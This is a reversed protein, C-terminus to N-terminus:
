PSTYPEPEARPAVQGESLSEQLRAVAALGGYLAEEEEGEGEEEEAGMAFGVGRRARGGGVRGGGVGVGRRLMRRERRPGAAAVLRGGAGGADGVGALPLVMKGGKSDAMKGGQAGGQAGGGRRSKGSGALM